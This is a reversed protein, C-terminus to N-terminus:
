LYSGQKLVLSSKSVNLFLYSHELQDASRMVLLASDGGSLWRDVSVGVPVNM